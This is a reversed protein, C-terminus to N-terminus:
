GPVGASDTGPLIPCNKDQIVVVLPRVARHAAPIDGPGYPPGCYGRHGALAAAEGIGPLFLGRGKRAVAGRLHSNRPCLRAGIGSGVLYLKGRVFVM